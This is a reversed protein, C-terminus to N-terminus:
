RSRQIDANGHDTRSSNATLLGGGQAALAGEQDNVTENISHGVRLKRGDSINEGARAREGVPARDLCDLMVLPESGVVAVLQPFGEAM